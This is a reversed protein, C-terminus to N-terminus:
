ARGKSRIPFKSNCTLCLKKYRESEDTLGMEKYIQSLLYFSRYVSRWDANVKQTIAKLVSIVEKYDKGKYLIKGYELSLKDKPNFRLNKIIELAYKDNFWIKTFYKFLGSLWNPSHIYFLTNLLFFPNHLDIKKLHFLKYLPEIFKRDLVTKILGFEYDQIWSFEDLDPKNKGQDVLACIAVANALRGGKKMISNYYRPDIVIQISKFGEINLYMLISEISPISVVKLKNTSGDYYSSEFKQGTLGCIKNKNFYVIDKMEIEKKFSKTIHKSSLNVTEIFLMKNCVSRLNHIASSISEVHHLLGTCIVIDFKQNSLSNIDGIKFKIKSKINLLKRIMKAKIINSERPEVGVIESFPLDSLQQLIWGDYCGVDLISLKKIEGMTFHKLICERIKKVLLEVRGSLREENSITYGQSTWVAHNYPGHANILEIKENDLKNM